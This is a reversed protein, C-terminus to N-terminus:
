LSETDGLIVRKGENRVMDVVPVFDGDGTLIIFNKIERTYTLRLMNIAFLVDVGKQRYKIIERRDNWVPQLRGLLPITNPIYKLKSIFNEKRRIFQIDRENKNKKKLYPKAYCYYTEERTLGLQKCLNDCFKGIDVKWGKDIWEPSNNYYKTIKEFFGGDIFIYVAEKTM